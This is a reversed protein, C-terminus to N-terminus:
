AMTFFDVKNQITKKLFDVITQRRISCSREVEFLSTKVGILGIEGRETFTSFSALTEIAQELEQETPKVVIESGESEEDGAEVAENEHIKWMIKDETMLEEVAAFIMTLLNCIMPVLVALYLM